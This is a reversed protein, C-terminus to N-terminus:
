NANNGVLVLAPGDCRPLAQCVERTEALARRDGHSWLGRTVGIGAAPSAMDGGWGGMSACEWPSVGFGRPFTMKGDSAAFCLGAAPCSRKVLM